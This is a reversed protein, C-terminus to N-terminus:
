VNILKDIIMNCNRKIREKYSHLKDPREFDEIAELIRKVTELYGIFDLISNCRTVNKISTISPADALSGKESVDNLCFDIKDDVQILKIKFRTNSSPSSSDLKTDIIIECKAVKGDDFLATIYWNQSENTYIDPIGIDFGKNLLEDVTWLEDDLILHVIGSNKVMNIIHTVIKYKREIGVTVNSFELIDPGQIIVPEQKTEKDKSVDEVPKFDSGVNTQDTDFSKLAEQVAPSKELERIEQLMQEPSEKNNRKAMKNKGKLRITGNPNVREVLVRYWEHFKENLKVSESELIFKYETMFDRLKGRGEDTCGDTAYYQNAEDDINYTFNPNRVEAVVHSLRIMHRVIRRVIVNAMMEKSIPDDCELVQPHTEEIVRIMVHMIASSILEAM